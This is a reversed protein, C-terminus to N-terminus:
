MSIDRTQAVEGWLFLIKDMLSRGMRMSESKKKMMRMRMRMMRMITMLSSIYQNMLKVNVTNSYSILLPSLLPLLIVVFGFNVGFQAFESKFKKIQSRLWQDTEELETNIQDTRFGHMYKELSLQLSFPSLIHSLSLLLLLLLLLTHSLCILTVMSQMRMNRDDLSRLNKSLYNRSTREIQFQKDLDLNHIKTAQRLKIDINITKEDMEQQFEDYFNQFQSFIDETPPDNSVSTQPFNIKNLQEIELQNISHHHIHSRASRLSQAASPISEFEHEFM